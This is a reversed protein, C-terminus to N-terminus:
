GEKRGRSRGTRGAPADAKTDDELAVHGTLSLFADDLTPRRLVVDDIAVGAGDLARVAEVLVM